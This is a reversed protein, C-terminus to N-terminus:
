NSTKNTPNPSLAIENKRRPMINPDTPTPKHLYGAINVLLRGVFGVRVVLIFCGQTPHTKNATLQVISIILM